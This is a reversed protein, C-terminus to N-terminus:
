KKAQFQTQFQKPLTQSFSQQTNPYVNTQEQDKLQVVQVLQAICSQIQKISQSMEAMKEDSTSNLKPFNNYNYIIEESPKSWAKSPPQTNSYHQNPCESRHQKWFGSHQNSFESYHRNSFGSHHPNPPSYHTETYNMPVGHPQDYNSVYNYSKRRRETGHLHTLTCDQSYCQKFKRSDPCLVPHFLGCSGNCGNANDQGFRGFRCYKLCKEPHLFACERGNVRKKGTKGYRCKGLKYYYCRQQQIHSSGMEVTPVENKNKPPYISSNSNQVTQTSSQSTQPPTHARGDEVPPRSGSAVERATQSTPPSTHAREVEVPPRSAVEGATEPISLNNNSSTSSQTVATVTQVMDVTKILSCYSLCIFTVTGFKVLKKKSKNIKALTDFIEKAMSCKVHCWM